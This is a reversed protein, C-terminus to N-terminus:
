TTTTSLNFGEILASLSNHGGIKVVKELRADLSSYAKTRFGNRPATTIASTSSATATSTRCAAPASPWGAAGPTSLPRRSGWPLGVLGSATFVNRCPSTPPGFDAEPDNNNSFTSGV